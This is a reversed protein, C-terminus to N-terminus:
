RAGEPPRRSSERLHRRARHGVLDPVVVRDAVVQEEDVQVEHVLDLGCAKSPRRAAPRVTRRTSRVSAVASWLTGVHSSERGFASRDRLRLELARPSRAGLEAHGEVPEPVRALADDVHDPRLQADRLRAHRDHAAVGCRSARRTRRAPRRCRCSRPRARGRSASARGSASSPAHAHRKSPRGPAAHRRLVQDEASIPWIPSRPPSRSRRRTRPRPWGRARSPPGCSSRSCTSRHPARAPRIAGSSM